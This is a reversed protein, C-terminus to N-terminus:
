ACSSRGRPPGSAGTTAKTAGERQPERLYRIDPQSELWEETGDGASGGVVITEHAIAVQRPHRAPLTQPPRPPHYTAVVISVLPSETPDSGDKVQAETLHRPM